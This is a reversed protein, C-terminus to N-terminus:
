CKKVFAPMVANLLNLFVSLLLTALAHPAVITLLVSSIWSLSKPVPQPKNSTLFNPSSTLWM